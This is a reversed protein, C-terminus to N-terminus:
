IYYRDRNVPNVVTEQANTALAIRGVQAQPEVDGFFLRLDKLNRAWTESSWTSLAPIREVKNHLLALTSSGLVDPALSIARLFAGVLAFFFATFSALLLVALWKKNCYIVDEELTNTATINISSTPLMDLASTNFRGTFGAPNIGIYLITNFIQSLRVGFVNSDITHLPIDELPRGLTQYPTTLYSLIPQKGGSTQAVPLLRTLLLLVGQANFPFGVDFVTYNYHFTPKLSHRVASPNCISGSSSGTCSVNVDVFSTTLSCEARTFLDGEPIWRSEWILKQADRTEGSAIQKAGPCPRSIAIQYQTGGTESFWDCDNGSDPVPGASSNFNTYDSQDSREM